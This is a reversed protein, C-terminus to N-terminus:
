FTLCYGLSALDVEELKKLIEDKMKGDMKAKKLTDTLYVRFTEAFLRFQLFFFKSMTCADVISLQLLDDKVQKLDYGDNYKHGEPFVFVSLADEFRTEAGKNHNQFDVFQMASVKTLDCDVDYKRGNIVLNKPVNNKVKIGEELFDISYKPIDTIKLDEFSVGYVCEIINFATYEDQVELIDKIKYYKEITIDNWTM